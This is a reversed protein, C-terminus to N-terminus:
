KNKRILKCPNGYYICNSELDKTVVSGMGIITNNGVSVYQKIVAGAGVHTDNGIRVGGPSVHVFDGVNCDHEVISNTNIICCDGIFSGANIAAGKGIFVGVGFVANSSTFSRKSIINPVSFGLEKLKNFLTKRIMPNGVSGISVFAQNWGSKFLDPLDSDNGVYTIRKDDLPIDIKEKDVIGVCSYLNDELIVDIISKCNGGGGILLIKNEM